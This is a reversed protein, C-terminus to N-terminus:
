QIRASLAPITLGEPGARVSVGGAEMDYIRESTQGTGLIESLSNFSNLPQGDLIIVKAPCLEM